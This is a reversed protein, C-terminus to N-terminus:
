DEKFQEQRERIEDLADYGAQKLRTYRAASEMIIALNRGPHVPVTLLPM